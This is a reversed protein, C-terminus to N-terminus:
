HAQAWTNAEKVQVGWHHKEPGLAIWGDCGFEPVFRHYAANMCRTMIAKVPEIDKEACVMVIEDHVVLVFRADYLKPKTVDGGRLEKYIMGMAIKLIDANSAQIPMNGAWRRIQSIIKKYDPDDQDPLTYNRLRGGMSRSYGLDQALLGQRELWAKLVKFKAFFDDIFEQAEDESMDTMFAVKQVGAGYPVGFTVTKIRSRITSLEMFRPHSPDDRATEMEEYTFHYREGFVATANFSHIDQGSNIAAILIPDGSMKAMLKVEIQAYDAALIKHGPESIIAQRPSPVSWELSDTKYNFFYTKDGVMGLEVRIAADAM